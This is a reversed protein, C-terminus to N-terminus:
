GHDSGTYSCSRIQLQSRYLLRHAEFVLGGPACRFQVLVRDYAVLRQLDHTGHLTDQRGPAAEELEHAEAVAKLLQILSTHPEDCVSNDAPTM